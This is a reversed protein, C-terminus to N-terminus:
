LKLKRRHQMSLKLLREFRKYVQSYKELQEYIRHNFKYFHERIEM